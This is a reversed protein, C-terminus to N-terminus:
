GWLVRILGQPGQMLGMSGEEDETAGADAGCDWFRGNNCRYRIEERETVAV